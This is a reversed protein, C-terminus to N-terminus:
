QLVLISYREVDYQDTHTHCTFHYKKAIDCIQASQEPEHEIWLQGNQTLHAPAEAIIRAIISLGDTGGYLASHPEHETVSAETRNLDPDIYPPNTLIHTYKSTKPVKSFLDGGYVTSETIGVNHTINKQITPHLSTDIEAFDVYAETFAKQVSVGICGSGACLDLVRPNTTATRLQRIAHETWHETEPRPILPHSDLYIKCNLFPTYGIVYGLPEGTKLRALDAQFDSTKEGSYKEELLWTEDKNM